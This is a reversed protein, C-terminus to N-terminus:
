RKLLDEFAVNLHVENEAVSSIQEATAYRDSTFLGNSNIRIYGSYRLRKAMEEPVDQPDFADVLSGLLGKEEPERDLSVAAVGGGFEREAATTAGLYVFSVEGIDDGTVDYVTMGSHVQNIRNGQDGEGALAASERVIRDHKIPATIPDNMTPYNAVPDNPIPDLVPDYTPNLTTTMTEGQLIIQLILLSALPKL